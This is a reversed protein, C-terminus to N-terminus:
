LCDVIAFHDWQLPAEPVGEPIQQRKSFFDSVFVRMDAANARVM